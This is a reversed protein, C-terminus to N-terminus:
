RVGKGRILTALTRYIVIVDIALGLHRIYYLDLNLKTEAGTKGVGYGTSVQAWGTIGPRVVHRADYFPIQARFDDVWEPREPRPGIISMEGRLVNFFQPWEDLRTRRLLRGVSTVRQDRHATFKPGDIESDVFMTRIKYLVFIKGDLGVRQQRFFIGGPSSFKVVGATVVFVPLIIFLAVIAIVVDIIRKLFSGYISTNPGGLDDPLFTVPWIKGSVLEYFDRADILVRQTHSFTTLFTRWEPHQKVENDLLLVDFNEGMLQKPSTIRSLDINPFVAGEWQGLDVLTYRLRTLQAGRSYEIFIVWAWLVATAPVMLYLSYTYRLLFSFTVAVVTATALALLTIAITNEM